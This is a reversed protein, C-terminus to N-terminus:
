EIKEVIDQFSVLLLTRSFNLFVVRNIQQVIQGIESVEGEQGPWNDLIVGHPVTVNFDDEAM